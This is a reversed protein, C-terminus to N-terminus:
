PKVELLADRLAAVCDFSDPSPFRAILARAATVVADRPDPEPTAPEGALAARFLETDGWTKGGAYPHPAAWELAEKLRDVPNEYSESM